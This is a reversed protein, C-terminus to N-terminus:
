DLSHGLRAGDIVSRAVEGLSAKRQGALEVLVAFAAEMDLGRDNAVVGKAQEVVARGQLAEQIRALTQAPDIPRITVVAISLIDAFVQAVDALLPDDHPAAESWFLNLGGVASGHWLMPAAYMRAYGAERMRRGFAPWRAEADELNLVALLGHRALAVASAPSVVSDMPAALVPIAFQYADITWGVSVDEPDRTRRSPVVAIDDFAYVRRARKSRGIEIEM